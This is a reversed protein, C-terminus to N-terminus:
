IDSLMADKLLVFGPLRYAHLDLPYTLISRVRQSALTALHHWHHMFAEMADIVKGTGSVGCFTRAPERLLIEM